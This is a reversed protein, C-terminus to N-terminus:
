VLGEEIAEDTFADEELDLIHQRIESVIRDLREGFEMGHGNYKVDRYVMRKGVLEELVTFHAYCDPNGADGCHPCEECDCGGEGDGDVSRCCVDCFAPEDWPLSSVGPPYSWGFVSAM